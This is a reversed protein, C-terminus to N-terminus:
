RGGRASGDVAYLYAAIHKAEDAGLGLDPMATAPDIAPPDMLWALLNDPRNALGAPLYVRGKLDALSPGVNGYPGPLGPIRHCAPCGRAAITARGIAPDAGLIRQEAQRPTGHGSSDSCAAM